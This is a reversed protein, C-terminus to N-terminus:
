TLISAGLAPSPPLCLSPRPEAAGQEAGPSESLRIDRYGNTALECLSAVFTNM